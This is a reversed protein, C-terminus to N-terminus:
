DVMIENNEKDVATQSRTRRGRSKSRPRKEKAVKRKRVVNGRSRASTDEPEYDPDHDDGAGVRYDQPEDDRDLEVIEVIGPLDSRQYELDEYTDQYGGDPVDRGKIAQRSRAEKDQEPSPLNFNKIATQMIVTTAYNVGKTGLNLVTHYGQDKAKAIYEDIEQERRCLAPHM